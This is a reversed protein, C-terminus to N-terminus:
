AGRVVYIYQITFGALERFQPSEAPENLLVPWIQQIYHIYAVRAAACREEGFASKM